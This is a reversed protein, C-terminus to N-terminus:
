DRDLAQRALTSCVSELATRPSFPRGSRVQEDFAEAFLAPDAPPAVIDRRTLFSDCTAALVQARRDSGGPAACGALAVALACHVLVTAASRRM